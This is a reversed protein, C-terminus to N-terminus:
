LNTFKQVNLQDTFGDIDRFTPNSGTQLVVSDYEVKIEDDMTVYPKGRTNNIGTITRGLQYNIGNREYWEENKLLLQERTLGIDKFMKDKDYPLDM